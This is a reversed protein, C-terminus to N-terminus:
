SPQLRILPITRNTARVEYDGYGAYLDVAQAWANARETTDTIESATYRGSRKGALVDVTPNVKLNRYWAPNGPRGYNSAVLVLSDGDSLSLLPLTRPLGSKAGTTTLLMVPVPYVSSVRGGSIRLLPPDLKPAVRTVFWYGASTRAFRELTREYISM